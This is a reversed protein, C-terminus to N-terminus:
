GNEKWVNDTIPVSTDNGKWYDQKDIMALRAVYTQMPQVSGDAGYYVSQVAEERSIILYSDETQALIRAPYPDKSSAHFLVPTSGLIEGSNLDVSCYETGGSEASRDLLTLFLVDGTVSSSGIQTGADLPLQDTVLSIEGTAPDMQQLSFDEPDIWLLRGNGMQPALCCVPDGVDRWQLTGVHLATFQFTSAGSVPNQAIESLTEPHYGPQTIKSFFLESGQCGLFDVGELDCLLEFEATDLHFAGLQVTRQSLDETWVAVPFYLTEGSAAIPGSLHHLNDFTYVLERGSGDPNMRWLQMLDDKTPNQVSAGIQMCYLSDNWALLMLDGRANPIWSTCSDDRHACEPRSCLFVRTQTAFDTYLINCGTDGSKFFEYYGADSQTSTIIGMPDTLLTLPSDLEQAVPAPSASPAPSPAAKTKGGCGTLLLGACLVPLWRKLSQKTHKM